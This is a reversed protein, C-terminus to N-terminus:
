NALEQPLQQQLYVWGSTIQIANQNQLTLMINIPISIVTGRAPTESSQWGPMATGLQFGAIVGDARVSAGGGNSCLM